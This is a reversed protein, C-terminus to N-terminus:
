KKVDKLKITVGAAILMVVGIAGTFVQATGTQPLNPQAPAVPVVSQASVNSEDKSGGAQIEEDPAVTAEVEPLEPSVDEPALVDPLPAIDVFNGGENGLVVDLDPNIEEPLIVFDVEDDNDLEIEPFIFDPLPVIPLYGPDGEEHELDIEDLDIDEPLPVPFIPLDDFDVEGKPPIIGIYDPETIEPDTPLEDPITTVPEDEDVPPLTPSPILIPETPLEEPVTTVPETEEPVTTEPETTVPETIEPLTTVPESPETPIPERSNDFRPDGLKLQYGHGNDVNPIPISMSGEGSVVVQMRYVDRSTWTDPRGGVSNRSGAQVYIWFTVDQMPDGVVVVEWPRDTHAIVSVSWDDGSAIVASNNHGPHTGVAWGFHTSNVGAREPSSITISDQAFMYVGGFDSAQGLTPALVGFAMTGALAAVGLNQVAKKNLKRM